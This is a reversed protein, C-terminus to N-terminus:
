SKKKLRIIIYTDEKPPTLTREFAKVKQEFVETFRNPYIASEGLGKNIKPRKGRAIATLFGIDRHILFKKEMLYKAKSNFQYKAPSSWKQALVFGWDTLLDLDEILEKNRGRLDYGYEERLFRNIHKLELESNKHLWLVDLINAMHKRAFIEAFKDKGM